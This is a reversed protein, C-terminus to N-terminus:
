RSAVQVSSTIPRPRTNPPPQIAAGLRFTGKSVRVGDADYMYGTMVTMGAVNSAVACIRGEADYLYENAGDSLVDGAADYTPAASVGRVNTSVMQNTTDFSSLATTTAGSGPLTCGAPGGGGSFANQATEQQVRNGFADYSWCYNALLNVAPGTGAKQPIIAGAMRNLTDYNFTWSGMVSDTYNVL